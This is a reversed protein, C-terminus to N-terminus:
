MMQNYIKFGLKKYLEKAEYNVVRLTIIKIEKKFSEYIAHICIHQAFGKQRYEPKTAVFELSAIGCNNMTTATSVLIDNEFCLYCDMLKDCCLNYHYEPHIDPYGNNLIDNAFNAWIRFSEQNDVKKISVNTVESKCIKDDPIIAMYLEEDDITGIVKKEGYLTKYLAKISKLDWWIPMKLSRIEEIINIKEKDNLDGIKVNYVFSIGKENEKPFIYSYYDKEVCNMHKARGFLSVYYNAGDNIYGIIEKDTM